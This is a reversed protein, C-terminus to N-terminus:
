RATITGRHCTSCNIARNQAAPTAIHQMKALEQNIMRHMLAMERAALKPRKADSSFDALDHCHACTVGLARAYGGNMISLFTRAPVGKLNPLQVNVFVRGASDNQRNGITALLSAVVSDNFAQVQSVVPAAPVTSTARAPPRSGRCAIGIAVMWAAALLIFRNRRM